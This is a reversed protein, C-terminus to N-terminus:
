CVGIDHFEYTHRPLRGPKRRRVLHDNPGQAGGETKREHKIWIDNMIIYGIPERTMYVMYFYPRDAWAMSIEFSRTYCGLDRFRQEFTTVMLNKREQPAARWLANAVNAQGYYEDITNHVAPYEWDGCWGM